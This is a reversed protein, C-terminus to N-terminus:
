AFRFRQLTPSLNQLFNYHFAMLLCKSTSCRIQWFLVDVHSDFHSLLLPFFSFSKTLKQFLFVFDCSKKM